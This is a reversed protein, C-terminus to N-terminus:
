EDNELEDYIRESKYPFVDELKLYFLIFCQEKKYSFVIVCQEYNKDLEIQFGITKTTLCSLDKVVENDDNDKFIINWSFDKRLKKDKLYPTIDSIDENKIMNIINDDYLYKLLINDFVDKCIRNLMLKRIKKYKNIERSYKIGIDVALKSAKEDHIKDCYCGSLENNCKDHNKCCCKNNINNIPTNNIMTKELTNLLVYGRIYNCNHLRGYMSSRRIIKNINKINENNDNDNVIENIYYTVDDNGDHHRLVCLPLYKLQVGLNSM